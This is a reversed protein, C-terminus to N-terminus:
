QTGIPSLAEVAAGQGSRQYRKRTRKLSAPIKGTEGHRVEPECRVRHEESGPAAWVAASAILEPPVSGSYDRIIAHFLEHQIADLPQEGSPRLLASPSVM